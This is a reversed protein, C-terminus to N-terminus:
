LIEFDATYYDETLGDEEDIDLAITEQTDPSDVLEIGNYLLIDSVKYQEKRSLMAFLQDFEDYTITKDKVYPEAMSLIIEENM